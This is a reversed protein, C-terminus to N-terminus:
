TGPTPSPCTASRRCSSSTVRWPTLDAAAAEVADYSTGSMLGIVRM